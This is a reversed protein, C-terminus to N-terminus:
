LAERLRWGLSQLKSEILADDYEVDEWKTNAGSYCSVRVLLQRGITRELDSPAVDALLPRSACNSELRKALVSPSLSLYVVIGHQRLWEMAGKACPTGGGTAIVSEPESMIVRLLEDEETRFSEIGFESIYESVSCGFQSELRQDMDIFPRGMKEAIRKGLTTKGSGMFGVFILHM